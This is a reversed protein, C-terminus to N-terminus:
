LLSCFFCSAKCSPFWEVLKETIPCQAPGDPTVKPAKAGKASGGLSKRKAMVINSRDRKLLEFIQRLVFARTSSALPFHGM